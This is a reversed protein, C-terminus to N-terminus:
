LYQVFINKLTMVIFVKFITFSKISTTISLITANNKPVKCLWNKKAFNFLNFVRECSFTKTPPWFKECKALKKQWIKIKPLTIVKGRRERRM